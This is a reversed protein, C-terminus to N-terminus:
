VPAQINVRKETELIVKRDLDEDIVNGLITEVARVVVKSINERLEVVMDEHQKAIDLKAREIMGEAEHYAKEIMEARLKLSDKKTEELMKQRHSYAADNEQKMQEVMKSVDDNRDQYHKLLDEIKKQRAELFANIKPWVVYAMVFLLIFFAIFNLVVIKLSAVHEM